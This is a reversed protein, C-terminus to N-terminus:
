RSKNCFHFVKPYECPYFFNPFVQLNQQRFSKLFPHIKFCFLIQITSFCKTHVKTHSNLFKSKATQGSISSSKEIEIKKIQGSIPGAKTTSNVIVISIFAYM